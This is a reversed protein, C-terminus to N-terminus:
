RVVTTYFRYLRDAVVEATYNERAYEYACEGMRTRENPDEFLRMLATSLADASREDVIISTEGDEAVHPLGGVDTVISPLGCAMAEILAMGFQEENDAMTISPLVFVDALNYLESMDENPVYEVHHVAENEAIRRDYTGSDLHNQGVLILNAEPAVEGFSDFADLLYSVGKQERLGHVFLVNYADRLATPLDLNRIAPRERDFRDTDVTNPVVVIDDPDIGEHILARKGAQTTATAGDARSNVYRKVQWTLCNGPYFPINEGATFAFNCDSGAASRAAQLSFLNFNESTHVVDFEDALTSIGRLVTRPLEFRSLMKWCIHERGFLTVAGDLWSLSRVEMDLWTTDFRQPESKFATISIDNYNSDLYDWPLVGNPNLYPGRVLAIDM